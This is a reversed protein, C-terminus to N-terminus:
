LQTEDTQDTGIVILIETEQGDAQVNVNTTAPIITNYEVSAQTLFAPLTTSVSAKLLNKLSVVTYPKTGNSLDYITTKSLPQDLKSNGIKTINYNMGTLQDATVSALGAVETSNQIEINANEKKIINANFINEALYQIESYDGSKPLLIYAGDITTDSVLLGDSGTDLVKTILNDLDVDEVLQALKVIEWIQLNTNNHDGLDDLVKIIKSPNIITNISFFKEKVAFLVKQQRKSRAFDSGEGNTGHRSRVYQLATEGDMHSMGQSFSITQYGFNYDPYEYDTFGNDVYIDIGGLDDIIKKFGAFDVRAFYQIDLGIVDEVVKKLLVEGGGPYDAELGFALSNNIKRWGFEPIDVYLDRPISLTAVENTSTKLSAVIITDALYAGQHGPGGIGTLLINIRDENEGQIQDEPNSILHRIQEFFGIKQGSEINTSNVALVAKTILGLGFGISIILVVLLTRWLLSLNRKAPTKNYVSADVKNHNVTDKEKEKLLDPM